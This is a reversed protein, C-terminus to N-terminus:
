VVEIRQVPQEGGEQEVGDHTGGEVAEKTRDKIKGAEDETKRQSEPTVPIEREIEAVQEGGRCERLQDGKDQDQGGDRKDSGQQAPEKAAPGARDTQAKGVAEAAGDEAEHATQQDTRGKQQRNRGKERRGRPYLSRLQSGIEEAPRM